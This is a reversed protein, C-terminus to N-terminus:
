LIEQKQQMLIEKLKKKARVLLSEVSGESVSMIEAVEKQPLEDLKSLSLAVRQREPLKDMAMLLIRKREELELEQSVDDSDVVSLNALEANEMTSLVGYGRKKRKKQRLYDLSKNVALRYLWTSLSAEERYSSVSKFVEVFVEQAVDEADVLHNVFSMCIHIVRQHHIVVLQRFADKNGEKVQKILLRDDIM